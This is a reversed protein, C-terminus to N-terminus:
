LRGTAAEAGGTGLIRDFGKTFPAEDRAKSEGEPANQAAVGEGFPSVIGDGFPFFSAFVLVGVFILSFLCWHVYNVFKESADKGSEVRKRSMIQQRDKAKSMM